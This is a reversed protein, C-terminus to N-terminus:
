GNVNDHNAKVKNLKDKRSKIADALKEERTKELLVVVPKAVPQEQEEPTDYTQGCVNCRFPEDDFLHLIVHALWLLGFIVSAILPLEPQIKPVLLLLSPSLLLLLVWVVHPVDYTNVVHLTHRQCESCWGKRYRLMPEGKGKFQGM